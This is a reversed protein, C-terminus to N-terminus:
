ERSRLKYSARIVEFVFMELGKLEEAESYRQDCLILNRADKGQKQLQFEQLVWTSGGVSCVGRGQTYKDSHQYLNPRPQHQKINLQCKAYIEM